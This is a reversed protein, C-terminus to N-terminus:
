SVTGNSAAADCLLKGISRLYHSSGVNADALALAASTLRVMIERSRNDKDLRGGLSCWRAYMRWNAPHLLFAQLKINYPARPTAVTRQCRGHATIRLENVGNTSVATTARTSTQYGLKLENSDRLAAAHKSTNPHEVHKNFVANSEGHQATSHWLADFCTTAVNNTTFAQDFRWHLTYKHRQRRRREKKVSKDYFIPGVHPRASPPM